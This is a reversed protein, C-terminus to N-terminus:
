HMFVTRCFIFLLQFNNYYLFNSFDLKIVLVEKTVKEASIRAFETFTSFM